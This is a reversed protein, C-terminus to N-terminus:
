KKKSKLAKELEKKFEDASEKIEKSAKIITNAPNDGGKTKIYFITADVLRHPITYGVSEVNKKTVLSQNLLNLLTHGEGQVELKLDHTSKNILIIKM